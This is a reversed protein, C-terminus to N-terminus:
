IAIFLRFCLFGLTILTGDTDIYDNEDKYFRVINFGISWYSTDIVLGFNNNHKGVLTKSIKKM